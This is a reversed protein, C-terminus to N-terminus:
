NEVKFVQGFPASTRGGYMVWIVPLDPDDGYDGEGDTLYVVAKPQPQMDRCRSLVPVFSTGGGGPADLLVSDGPFYERERTIKADCCIEVVKVPRMQDLCGQVESKFAQLLPGDISGSTDIAFVVPGMRESKLSPLMFGSQTMTLDLEQWSWDEACQERLWNRLLSPWPVRPNVIGDVLRSLDAPLEGRGKAMTVAQILTNQWDNAERKAQSAAASGPAAPEPITFQGFSPMSHPKPVASPGQSGRPAVKNAGLSGNSGGAGSSGAPGAGAKGAGGPNKPGSMLERYIQEESMGKFRPDACYADAPGPFPFPDALRRATVLASFDKLMLNIAHDCARNATDADMGQFRWLHGLMPHLVEHCLVTVLEHDSLKDFFETGWRIERGDTCATKVAPDFVVPLRAVGPAFFPANLLVRIQAKELRKQRNSSMKDKRYGRGQNFASLTLRRSGAWRAGIEFTAM